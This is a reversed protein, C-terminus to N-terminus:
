TQDHLLAAIREAIYFGLEKKDTLPLVDRNGDADFLTIRNTQAGIGADSQGTQNLIILDFNKAQLKKRANDEGHDSELAFGIHVCSKRRGFSWAIDPNPVLRLQMEQTGEKKIKQESAVAPRYDAVAAAFVVADAKEYHMELATMMERASEVRIVEMGSPPIESGPGYILIVRAGSLAAAHAIAIGMKGSSANGLFRVPDLKEHTPGATLVITKGALPKNGRIFSPLMQVIDAPEAMRGDGVLGSALEGYAVPICQVGDSVLQSLNRQTAPHKWMDLDMAPAVAVPCRASLYCATVMNDCLGNAMKALTNATAPAVLMLDAWLGLEVHNNWSSEDSVRSIVPHRSLTELTLPTIFSAADATMIIRVEAGERILLRTLLAAKYAAISGTVALLIKKGALM